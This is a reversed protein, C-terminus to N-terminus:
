TGFEATLEARTAELRGHVADVVHPRYAAPSFHRVARDLVAGSRDLEGLRAHARALRRMALDLTIDDVGRGRLSAEVVPSLQRVGEAADAPRVSVGTGGPAISKFESEANLGKVLRAHVALRHRPYREVVEDFADNGARLSPADSGRLALLAGQEEGTMLEAVHEDAESLPHRVVIRLAPSVVRSGDSAVHRARLLYTGPQAFHHGDQGYGIYASTRVSPRDADLRVTRREDVCRRLLPRHLVTRGSPQRILVDTMDDDPHLFAHTSRGRPDTTALELEVVVPEGYAFASRARLTLRLGSEDALPPAFLEADASGTTFPSAGMVVNRYFGHRLHLIEEPTFQFPFAAWYAATGSPDGSGPDYNQPYNMWSLDGLGGNPGLPAPPRALNKQWSHLLNFSHGLEHVYTRLQARRSAADAGQIQDHFVACGQRQFADRADFMIGRVGAMEAYSGAVLLWVKWQPANRWMSFRSQMAAHLERDTWGDPSDAVVNAGGSVRLEVGAEAYAGPVTLLRPPSGAPRPLSGTDYSVFPAKGAVSDQEWEVTRFFPSEYACSYVTGPAGTARAFRVEAAAPPRDSPQRPVTVRVVPFAVPATFTGEGEIVVESPSWTVAPAHVVFSGAYATTAGSTGFFDGSVKGLPRAGDVDVRLELRRTGSGGRYRGHVPHPAVAPAGPLAGSEPTEAAAM